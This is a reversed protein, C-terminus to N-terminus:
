GEQSSTRVLHQHAPGKGNTSPPNIQRLEGAVLKAKDFQRQMIYREAKFALQLVKNLETYNSPFDPLLNTHIDLDTHSVNPVIFHQSIYGHKRVVLTVPGENWIEDYDGMEMKFPTTGLERVSSDGPLIVAVEAGPPNSNIKVSACSSIALAALLINFLSYFKM